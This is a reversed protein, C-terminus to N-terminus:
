PGLLFYILVVQSFRNNHRRLKFSRVHEEKEERLKKIENKTIRGKRAPPPAAKSAGAKSGGNSSAKGNTEQQEALLLESPTVPRDHSRPRADDGEKAAEGKRRRYKKPAVRVESRPGAAADDDDNENANAAANVARITSVGEPWEGTLELSARVVQPLDVTRIM